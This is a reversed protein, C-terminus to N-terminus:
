PSLPVPFGECKDHFIMSSIIKISDDSNVCILESRLKYRLISKSLQPTVALIKVKIKLM